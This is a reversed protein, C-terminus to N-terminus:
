VGIMACSKLRFTERFVSNVKIISAVAEHTWGGHESLATRVEEQIEELDDQKPSVPDLLAHACVMTSTRLQASKLILGRLAIKGPENFYPGGSERAHNAVWRLFDQPEPGVDKGSKREDYDCLRQKVVPEVIRLWEKMLHQNSRLVLPAVVNKLLSPFLRM